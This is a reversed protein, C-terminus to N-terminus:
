SCIIVEGGAKEIKDIALKSFSKCTIKLKGELKGTGLIRDYKSADLIYTDGEKKLKNLTKNIDKINIIKRKLGVRRQNKFGSKGFYSLGYLKLITPKKQDARKGTGALGRGGRNGAGRNKKMSGYGHTTKARMRTNKKRKNAVM